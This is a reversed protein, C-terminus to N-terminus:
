RVVVDMIRLSGAPVLIPLTGNKVLIEEGSLADTVSLIEAAIQIHITVDRDEPDLWGSDIAFLRYKGESMKLTQFFVAGEARFPLKAASKEFSARLAVAAEMGTLKPGSDQWVYIGDTHWWEKIGPVKDLDTHVPM